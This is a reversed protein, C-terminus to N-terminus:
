SVKTSSRRSRKKLPEKKKPIEVGSIAAHLIAWAVHMGEILPREPYCYTDVLQKALIPGVEISSGDVSGSNGGILGLRITERIDSVSAAGGGVYVPSEGNFAIGSALGDYIAFLSKDTKRELEVVQPLSLWFHYEGDAFKIDIATDPM